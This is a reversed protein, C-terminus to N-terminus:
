VAPLFDEDLTALIARTRATLEGFASIDYDIMEGIECVAFDIIAINTPNDANFYSADRLYHVGRESFREQLWKVVRASAPPLATEKVDHGTLQQMKLCCDMLYHGSVDASGDRVEDIVVIGHFAAIHPALESDAKIRRYAALESKFTARAILDIHPETRDQTLNTPHHRSKFLKYVAGDGPSFVSAFAGDGLKQGMLLIM